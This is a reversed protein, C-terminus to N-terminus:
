PAFIGRRVVFGYVKAFQTVASVVETVKANTQEDAPKGGSTHGETKGPVDWVTGCDHQLEILQQHVIVGAIVTARLAPGRMPTYTCTLRLIGHAMAAPAAVELQLEELFEEVTSFQVRM